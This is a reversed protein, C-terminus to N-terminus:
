VGCNIHSTEQGAPGPYIILLSRNAHAHPHPDYGHIVRDDDTLLAIHFTKLTELYPQYGTSPIM